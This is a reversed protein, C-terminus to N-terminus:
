NLLEFSFETYKGSEINSLRLRYLAGAEINEYATHVNAICSNVSSFAKRGDVRDGQANSLLTVFGMAQLRTDRSCIIQVELGNEVMFRYTASGLLPDRWGAVANLVVSTDSSSQAYSFSSFLSALIFITGMLGTFKRKM